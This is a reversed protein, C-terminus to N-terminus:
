RCPGQAPAAARVPWGEVPGTMETGRVAFPAIRGAVHSPLHVQRKRFMYYGGAIVLVALLLLLPLTPIKAGGSGSEQVQAIVPLTFPVQTLGESGRKDVAVVTLLHSGGEFAAPHLEFSFPAGTARHVSIGDVKYEVSALQIASPVGPTLATVDTFKGENPLGGVTLSFPRPKAGALPAMSRTAEGSDARYTVRLNLPAALSRDVDPPVIINITVQNRIGAAIDVYSQRLAAPSAADVARGGSAKTVENLYARDTANGLGVSMVGVGSAQAEAISAARKELGVTAEGDSLLVVLRRGAPAELAKKTAEIVGDYLATDGLPALAAVARDLEPRSTTFDQVLRVENSFSLLAVQDAPELGRIFEQLARKAQNMPEGAMSGSVDVMLVVSAGARAANSTQVDSIPLSIDGLNVRFNAALLGQLPAGDAGYASVAALIRGEREEIANIEVRINEAAGAASGALFFGFVLAVVAFHRM